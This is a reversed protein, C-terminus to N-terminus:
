CQQLLAIFDTKKMKNTVKVGRSKLLDRLEKMSMKGYEQASETTYVPENDSDQPQEVDTIPAPDSNNSTEAITELTSTEIIPTTMVPAPPEDVLIPVFFSPVIQATEIIEHYEPIFGRKKILIIKGTSKEIVNMTEFPEQPTPESGGHAQSPVFLDGM